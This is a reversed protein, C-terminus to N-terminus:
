SLSQNDVIIILMDAADDTAPPPLPLPPPPPVSVRAVDNRGVTDNLTRWTFEHRLIHHRWFDQRPNARVSYM